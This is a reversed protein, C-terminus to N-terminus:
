NSPILATGNNRQSPQNDRVTTRKLIKFIPLNLFYVPRLNSSNKGILAARAGLNKKLGTRM